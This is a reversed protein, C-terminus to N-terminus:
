PAPRAPAAPLASFSWSLTVKATGTFLGLWTSNANLPLSLPLTASATGREPAQRLTATIWELAATPMPQPETARSTHGSETFETVGVPSPIHVNEVLLGRVKDATDLVVTFHDCLPLGDSADVTDAERRESFPVFKDSTKNYRVGDIALKLTVRSRSTCGKFPLFYLYQGPEPDEELAEPYDRAALIAAYQLNTDRNCIADGKCGYIAEQFRKDFAKQEAETEPLVLKGGKAEISRKAQRALHITKAELRENLDHALLNRVERRGDSRLDLTLEYRQTTSGKSYQDGPYKPDNKKWTQTAEVTAVLHLRRDIPAADAATSIFTALAMAVAAVTWRAPLCNPM